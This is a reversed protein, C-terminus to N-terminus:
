GCKSAYFYQGKNMGKRKRKKKVEGRGERIGEGM